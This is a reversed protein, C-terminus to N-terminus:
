EIVKKKLKSFIEIKALKELPFVMGVGSLISTVLGAKFFYRTAIKQIWLNDFHILQYDKTTNAGKTFYNIRFWNLKIWNRTIQKRLKPDRSFLAAILIPTGFFSHNYNRRVTEFELFESAPGELYTIPEEYIKIDPIESVQLTGYKNCASQLVALQGWGTWSFKPAAPFAMKM